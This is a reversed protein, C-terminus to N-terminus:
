FPSWPVKAGVTLTARRLDKGLLVRLSEMRTIAPVGGYSSLPSKAPLTLVLSTDTVKVQLLESFQSLSTTKSM